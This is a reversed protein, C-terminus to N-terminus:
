IIVPYSCKLTTHRSREMKVAIAYYKIDETIMSARRELGCLWQLVTYAIQRHRLIVYRCLLYNKKEVYVPMRM